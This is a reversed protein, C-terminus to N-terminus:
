AATEQAKLRDHEAFVLSLFTFIVFAAWAPPGFWEFGPIFLYKAYWTAAVIEGFFIIGLSREIWGHAKLAAIGGVITCAVYVAFGINTALM